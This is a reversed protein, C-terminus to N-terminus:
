YSSVLYLRSNIFMKVNVKAALQITMKFQRRNLIWLTSSAPNSKLVSPVLSDVTLEVGEIEWM